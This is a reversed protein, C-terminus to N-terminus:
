IGKLGRLKQLGDVVAKAKQDPDFLVSVPKGDKGVKKEDLVFWDPALGLAGPRKSMRDLGKQIEDADSLSAKARILANYVSAAVSDSNHVFVGTSLAFNGYDISMDFVECSAISQIRAVKHNVMAKNKKYSAWYKKMRAISQIRAVKHNVMAKNKKYSAWYKKMRISTRRSQERAWAPDAWLKKMIKTGCASHIKYLREKTEPSPEKGICGYSNRPKTQFIHKGEAVLLKNAKSIRVSHRIRFQPDRHLMRMVKTGNHSFLGNKKLKEIRELSTNYKIINTHGTRKGLVAARKKNMDIFKPDKHLKRLNTVGLKIHLNRHEDWDM